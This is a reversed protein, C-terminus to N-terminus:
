PFLPGDSKLIPCDHQFRGVDGLVSELAPQGCECLEAQDPRGVDEQSLVEGRQRGLFNEVRCGSFPQRGDIVAHAIRRNGCVIGLQLFGDGRELRDRRPEGGPARVFAPLHNSSHARSQRQRWCVVAQLALRGTQGVGACRNWRRSVCIGVPMGRGLRPRRMGRRPRMDLRCARVGREAVDAIREVLEIGQGNSRRCRGRGTADTQRPQREFQRGDHSQRREKTPIEDAVRKSFRDFDGVFNASAGALVEGQVVGPLIM